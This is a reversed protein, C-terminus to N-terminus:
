GARREDAPILFCLDGIHSTRNTWSPTSAIRWLSTLADQLALHLDIESALSTIESVLSRVDESAQREQMLLVLASRLILIFLSEFVAPLRAAGLLTEHRSDSQKIEDLGDRLQCLFVLAVHNLSFRKGELEAGSRLVYSKVIVQVRLIKEFYLNDLEQEFIRTDDTRIQGEIASRIEELGSGSSESVSMGSWDIRRDGSVLQLLGRTKGNLEISLRLQKDVHDLVEIQDKFAKFLCGYSKLLTSLVDSDSGLAKMAEMRVDDEDDQILSLLVLLL